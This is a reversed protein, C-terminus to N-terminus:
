CWSYWSSASSCAGSCGTDPSSPRRHAPGPPPSTTRPRRWGAIALLTETFTVGKPWAGHTFLGSLGTATWVLITLGLLFGLLGVLLGDPVGGTGPGNQQETRGAM